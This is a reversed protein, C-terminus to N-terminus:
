SDKKKVKTGSKAKGTKRTPTKNERTNETEPIILGIGRYGTFLGQPDFVPIGTTEFCLICGDKSM